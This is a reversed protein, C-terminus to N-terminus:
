EQMLERLKKVGRHLKSLTTGIPEGRMEAIEKFSLESYYRLMVLERTDTDLKNLQIQIKEIQENEHKKETTTETELQEKRNELLKKQRQKKRLYDYFINSAIKFLWSQFCGGNYSKIKEILKVFLESLLDDSVDKNGTLRYFYGYCRNAYMDLLQSFSDAEGSKCGAIIRVLTDNETM